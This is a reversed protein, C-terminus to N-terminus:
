KSEVVDFEYYENNWGYDYIVNKDEFRYYQAGEDQSKLVDPQEEDGVKIIDPGVGGFNCLKNRHVVVGTLYRPSPKMAGEPVTLQEWRWTDMSICYVDSSFYQENWGGYLYISNTDKHYSLTSGMGLLPIDEGVVGHTERTSWTLSNLDFVDFRYKGDKSKRPLNVTVPIPPHEEEEEEEEVDTEEESDSLDIETEGAVTTTFM